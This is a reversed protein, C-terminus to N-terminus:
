SIREKHDKILLRSILNDFDKDKSKQFCRQGYNNIHNILAFDSKANPYPHERFYLFYLIVGLSWLDCKLDYSEGNLIEPAM